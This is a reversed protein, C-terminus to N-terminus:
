ENDEEYDVDGYDYNDSFSYYEPEKEFAYRSVCRKNYRRHEKDAMIDGNKSTSWVNFELIKNRMM